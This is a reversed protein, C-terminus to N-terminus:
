LTLLNIIQIIMLVPKEPSFGSYVIKEAEDSLKIFNAIYEVNYLAPM